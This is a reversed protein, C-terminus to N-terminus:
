RNGARVIELTERTAVMKTFSRKEVTFRVIRKLEPAYWATASYPLPSTQRTWGELGIRIARYDKTDIRMVEDGGVNVKLDYEMPYIQTPLTFRLAFAGPAQALAEWGGPPVLADLEGLVASSHELVAGAPTEIRSGGNFVVRNDMVRDVTLSITRGVGTLGDTLRYEFWDGARRTADLPTSAGAGGAPSSAVTERRSARAAEDRLKSRAPLEGILGAPVAFNLNQADRGGKSTIGILRGQADFLGGGSSGPSIPATTQIYVLAGSDDRRLASILGDSLTMEFGQPSGIAYVRAGVRLSDTGAMEVAPAEFGAVKLQCLDREPDQLEVVAGYSVNERQVSFSAGKEVVHCNTILRGPGITVASGQSQLRSRGDFNSVTWVSPSVREFVQDPELTAAVALGPQLLLPLLMRGWRIASNMFLGHM